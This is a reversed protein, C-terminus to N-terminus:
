IACSVINLVKFYGIISFFRSFFNENDKWNLLNMQRMNGEGHLCTISKIVKLYFYQFARLNWKKEVEWSVVNPDRTKFIRVVEKRIIRGM